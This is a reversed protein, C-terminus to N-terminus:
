CVILDELSINIYFTDYLMYCSIADNEIFLLFLSLSIYFITHQLSYKLEIIKIQIKNHEM